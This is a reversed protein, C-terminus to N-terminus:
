RVFCQVFDRSPLAPRFAHECPRGWFLLRPINRLKHGVLQGPTYTPTRHHIRKSIGYSTNELFRLEQPIGGTTLPLQVILGRHGNMRRSGSICQKGLPIEM